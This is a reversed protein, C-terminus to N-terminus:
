LLCSAFSEIKINFVSNFPFFLILWNAISVDIWVENFVAPDLEGLNDVAKPESNATFHMPGKEAAKKKKAKKKKEEGEEKVKKKTNEESSVDELVVDNSKM